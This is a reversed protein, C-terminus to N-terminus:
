ILKSLNKYHNFLTFNKSQKLNNLKIEKINDVKEFNKFKKIFSEINDNEFVIGNIQDKILEIPGPWANSSLIISKCFSAEILVFGPDEWLSSLIFGKSNKFYPYINEIYGLLIINKQLNNKNIFKKLNLEEEGSGAIMLKIDRNEKILEKFAKCLFMFNKQKTLRGVSLFFNKIDIKENKKKNIEKVRIIPDYLLKLKSPDVLNLDRIYNLTNNTPCTILYIKKFAIKWLFKRLFNMRPYGSIRLIFKTEFKFFILLILPLSTILHILLFDPKDKKLVKRLPFFGFLFMIFFSFRSGIFGRNPLFKTFDLNYYNLFKVKEKKKKNQINNFEGFFNLILPEYNSSFISMSLASNIVAKRTAIPTLFPSWYYISKKKM